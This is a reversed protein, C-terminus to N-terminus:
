LTSSVVREFTDVDGRYPETSRPWHVVVADVGVDAYCGITRTFADLSDLGADLVVPGLCTPQPTTGLLEAERM